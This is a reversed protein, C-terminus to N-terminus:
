NKDRVGDFRHRVRVFTEKKMKDQIAIMRQIKSGIFLQKCTRRLPLLEVPTYRILGSPFLGIVTLQSMVVSPPPQVTKWRRTSPETFKLRPHVSYLNPNPFRLPSNQSPFSLRWRIAAASLMVSLTSKSSKSPFTVKASYEVKLTALPEFLYRSKIPPYLPVAPSEIAYWLYSFM